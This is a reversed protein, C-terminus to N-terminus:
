ARIISLSLALIFADFMTSIPKLITIHKVLSRNWAFRIVFTSILISLVFILFEMLMDSKNQSKAVKDVVQM